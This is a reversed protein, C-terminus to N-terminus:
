EGDKMLQLPHLFMDSNYGHIIIKTPHLKNFHSSTLNSKKLSEDIHVFQRDKPNKRTYLYFLIDRDPCKRDVTWICPGISIDRGLPPETM